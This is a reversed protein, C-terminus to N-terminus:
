SSVNLWVTAVGSGADIINIAVPRAPKATTRIRRRFFYSARQPEIPDRAERGPGKEEQPAHVEVSQGAAARCIQASRSRRDM